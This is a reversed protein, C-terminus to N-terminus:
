GFRRRHFGEVTERIIREGLTDPEFVLEVDLVKVAAQFARAEDTVPSLRAADKRTTVLLLDEREAQETLEAMEAASLPHHDPFDRTAGIEVGMERLTRYFKDPDAIGAFALVRQGALAEPDQPVLRAEFVPRNGRATRRIAADGASGQSIVLLATAHRIQDTLPARLPGAPVVHGNGLGRGADIVLLAYDMTLRASQFGDDMIVFDCGAQRRLLEAGQKRDVAVATPAVAALLLPEDGVTRADHHAPDVLMPRAAAGGHGRSVYGPRYGLQQAARGIAIATPTKGGGGVTFNGICIVPVGAEAREGHDLRWRAAAGYIAAAPALLVAQWSHTRWWFPPTEGAMM